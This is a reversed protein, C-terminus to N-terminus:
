AGLTTYDDASFKFGYGGEVDECVDDKNREREGDDEFDVKWQKLVAM